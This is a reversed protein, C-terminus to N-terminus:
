AGPSTGGAKSQLYQNPDLPKVGKRIEFHLQPETVTGTQGVTGLQDGAMVKQGTKVTVKDLHAYVTTTGNDHKVLVVKGFGRLHNGASGVVGNNAAVVPTGASTRINIGDNQAAGKGKPNFNRSIKGKTPWTYYEAAPPPVGKKPKETVTTKDNLEDEASKGDNQAQKGQPARDEDGVHEDEDGVDQEAIEKKSSEGFGKAAPTTVVPALPKVQVGNEDPVDGVSESVGAEAEDEAGEKHARVVLRQGKVIRYPHELGNIRVLERKDMNYKRAISAISEGKKVIHYPSVPKDYQVPAPPGGRSSCGVLTGVVLVVLILKVVEQCRM